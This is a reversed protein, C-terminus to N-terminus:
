GSLSANYARLALLQAGPGGGLWGASGVSRWVQKIGDM